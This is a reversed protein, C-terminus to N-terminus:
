HQGRDVGALILGEDLETGKSNGCITFVGPVVGVNGSSSRDYDDDVIGRVCFAPRGRYTLYSEPLIHLMSITGYIVTPPLADSQAAVLPLASAASGVLWVAVGVYTEIDEKM